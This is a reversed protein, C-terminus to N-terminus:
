AGVKAKLAAIEAAQTIVLTNLEQIAKVMATYIGKEELGLRVTKEPNDSDANLVTEFEKVLEPKITQVDQAIFGYQTSQEARDNIWNYTVPKLKLVFDLGFDLDKVNEKLRADSPNTNTLYGGNSYVTGTGLTSSLYMLNTGSGNQFLFNAIAPATQSATIICGWNTDSYIRGNGSQNGWAINGNVNL